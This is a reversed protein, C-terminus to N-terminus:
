AAEPGFEGSLDLHNDGLCAACGDWIYFPGNPGQLEKGSADFIQVRPCKLMCLTTIEARPLSVAQWVM